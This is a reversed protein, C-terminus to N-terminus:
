VKMLNNSSVAATVVGGKGIIVAGDSRIQMVDYIDYYVKFPQGNFQIANIVKVSQGISLLGAASGTASQTIKEPPIFDLPNKSVGQPTRIEYHLHIGSSQGTRGMVGIKQGTRVSQGQKVTISGCKLHRFIYLYGDNGRINLYNGTVM